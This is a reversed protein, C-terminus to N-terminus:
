WAGWDMPNELCSYQLPTGNGEGLPHNPFYCFTFLCCASGALGARRKRWGRIVQTKEWVAAMKTKCGSKLISYYLKLGPSSRQMDSTLPFLFSEPSLAVERLLWAARYWTLPPHPKHGPPIHTPSPLPDSRFDVFDLQEERLEESEQRELRYMCVSGRPLFEEWLVGQQLGNLSQNFAELWPSRMKKHSQEKYDQISIDWIGM